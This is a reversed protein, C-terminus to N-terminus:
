WWSGSESQHLERRPEEVLLIIWLLATISFLLVIGFLMKVGWRQAIVGAIVPFLLTILAITLSAVSLYVVRGCEPVIDILLNLYSLFLSSFSIGASLYVLICGIVGLVFLLILCMFVEAVSGILIRLRHGKIDGLRGLILHAIAVGAPLAAGCSVVTSDRLLGGATSCYYVAVFPIVCAAVSALIKWTILCLFTRSVFLRRIHQKLVQWDPQVSSDDEVHKDDVFWFISLSIIAIIGAVIYLVSFIYLRDYERLLEGSVLGGIIGLSASGFFSAGLATGRIKQHFVDAMWDMWVAAIVGIGANTCAFSLLLGGVTGWEGLRHTLMIIVGMILIFPIVCFYHWLILQRKRSQRERFIFWGLLQLMGILGGELIPILGIMWTSVYLRRLLLALVTAPSVMGAQLGWLGEGAVVTLINRVDRREM